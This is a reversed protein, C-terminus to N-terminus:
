ESTIIISNQNIEAEFYLTTLLKVYSYLERKDLGGIELMQKKAEASLNDCMMSFGEFKDLSNQKIWKVFGPIESTPVFGNVTRYGAEINCYHGFLIKYPISSTDSYPNSSNSFIIGLDETMKYLDVKSLKAKEILTELNILEQVKEAKTVRYYNISIGMNINHGIVNGAKDLYTFSTTLILGIFVILIAKM